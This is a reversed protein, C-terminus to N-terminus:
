FKAWGYLYLSWIVAGKRVIEVEFHRALMKYEFTNESHTYGDFDDIFKVRIKQM